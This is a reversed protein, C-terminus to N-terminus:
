QVPTDTQSHYPSSLLKPEVIQMTPPPIQPVSKLVPFNNMLAIVLILQDVFHFRTSFNGRRLVKRRTADADNHM